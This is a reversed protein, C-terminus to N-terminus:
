SKSASPGPSAASKTSSASAPGGAPLTHKYVLEAVNILVNVAGTGSLNALPIEIVFTRNGDAMLLETDAAAAATTATPHPSASVPPSAASASASAGQSAQPSTSAQAQALITAPHGDVLAPQATVGKAVSSAVDSSVRGVANSATDYTIVSVTLSAPGTHGTPDVSIGFGCTVRGTRGITPLAAYDGYSTDGVQPSGFAATLDTDSLISGCTKPLQAAAEVPGSLPNYTAPATPSSAPKSTTAATHQTAGPSCASLVGLLLAAGPAAALRMACM